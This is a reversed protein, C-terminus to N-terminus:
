RDGLLDGTGLLAATSEWLERQVGADRGPEPCELPDGNRVSFYGGTAGAYAPDTALRVVIGAGRRPDGAGLRNLAKELTGSFPLERGLGTTNFGPDCCNATVGTGALRRALEQSFMIDMLKTRGYLRSSERRTYDDTLTLDRAPIIGGSHRSAESAVTVIRAPASSVLTDRLADTLVWPALYNVATMEALGEGTIRQSFAHLGANNILVDIRPCRAAIEQGARRVERLLSLDALFLDVPTGPAAEEIERRLADAKTRSRAVIGLRAGRRALDLAALRGIGNTAGTMVIVPRDPRDPRDHM